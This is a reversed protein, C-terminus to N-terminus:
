PFFYGRPSCNSFQVGVRPELAILFSYIFALFAVFVHDFTDVQLASRLLLFKRQKVAALIDITM